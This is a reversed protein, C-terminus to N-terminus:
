NNPIYPPPTPREAQKLIEEDIAEQLNEFMGPFGIADNELDREIIKFLERALEYRGEQWAQDTTIASWVREPAGHEETAPSTSAAAAAHMDFYNEIREVMARKLTEHSAATNDFVTGVITEARVRNLPTTREETASAPTPQATTRTNWSRAAKAKTGEPATMAYCNTCYAQENGYRTKQEGEGWAAKGGCFPCPELAVKEAPLTTETPMAACGSKHIYAQCCELWDSCGANLEEANPLRHSVIARVGRDM